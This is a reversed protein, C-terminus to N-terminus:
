DSIKVGNKFTGNYDKWVTGNSWYFDWSGEKKGNKYDGKSMLQGNEHYHVWSGEQKGNKYDGKYWLQGNEWYAIWSGESKGNKLKGKEEGTINGTFPVETFKKYYLGDRVVLDKKELSWGVSSTLCFLVTFFTILTKNM